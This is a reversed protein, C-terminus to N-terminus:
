EVAPRLPRGYNGKACCVNTATEWFNRILRLMQPGVGHALCRGRDMADFAKKLDIFVGFFPRQKLHALQQALKAEIIGTGTGRGALCGHLSDHLKIKELRLDMVREMVKWIPELLGIGRYEGGGKPILVTVVWCLQQPINGTAWVSTCIEVFERWSKGAGIHTAGNELDEEKKAGRLWAKIHEARIGSAGGCRGHSLQSVATRLEEESPPYDDIEFPTGSTPFDAGYADRKAYLEVREDTQRKMTQHCPRAQAESAMRYWGKLHRFAEQMNGEGLESVIKEGVEATLRRKDEKLAVHVERKMRRAATQRIKGSRLLSARKRILKWTGKSIWKKGPARTPKPDACKAALADFLVTNPDKPGPPLSLPFKQRARRYKKLRGKRGVRINVVVARHDSHLFRPSRFGVGQFQSMDGARAM